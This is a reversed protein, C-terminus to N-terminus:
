NSFVFAIAIFFFSFIYSFGISFSLTRSLSRCWFFYFLVLKSLAASCRLPLALSLSRALLLDSILVSLALSLPSCLTPLLLLLQSAIPAPAPWL